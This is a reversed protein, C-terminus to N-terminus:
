AYITKKQQQIIFINRLSVNPKKSHFKKANKLNTQMSLVGVVALM